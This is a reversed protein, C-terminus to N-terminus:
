TQPEHSRTTLTLGHGAHLALAPLHRGADGRGRRGAERRYRGAAPRYPCVPRDQNRRRYRFHGVQGRKATAERCHIVGQIANWAQVLKDLSAARAPTNPPDQEVPEQEGIWNPLVRVTQNPLVTGDPKATGYRRTQCYGLPSYPTDVKANKGGGARGPTGGHKTEPHITEYIVKRRALAKSQSALEPYTDVM